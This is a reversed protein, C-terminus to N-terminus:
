LMVPGLMKSALAKCHLPCKCWTEYASCVPSQMIKSFPRLSGMKRQSGISVERRFWDLTAHPLCDVVSCCFLVPELILRVHANTIAPWTDIEAPVKFFTSVEMEEALFCSHCFSLLLLHGCLGPASM